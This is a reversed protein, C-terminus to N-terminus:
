AILDKDGIELLKEPDVKEPMFREFPITKDIMYRLTIHTKAKVGGVAEYLSIMKPNFDGVWSLEIEKYQPKFKMKENMHWFIGSEVGSNQFKPIVGAAIARIRNIMGTKKYYIFRLMNWLHLKGNLKKLIQNADPFM